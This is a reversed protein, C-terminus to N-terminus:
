AEQSNRYVLNAYIAKGCEDCFVSPGEWYVDVELEHRDFSEIDKDLKMACDFCLREGKHLWLHEYGGPFCYPKLSGDEYRPLRWNRTYVQCDGESDVYYGNGGNDCTNNERIFRVAVDVLEDHRFELWQTDSEAEDARMTCEDESLEGQEHLRDYEACWVAQDLAEILRETPWQGLELRIDEWGEATISINWSM